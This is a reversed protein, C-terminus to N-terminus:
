KGISKPDEKRRKRYEEVSMNKIDPKSKDLGSGSAGGLGAVQTGKFLNAFEPMEKLTKVAEDPDLDLTKSEGGSKITVKVKTTFEGTGKGADDTIEVTRSNPSLIAIIQDPNFAEHKVSASTLAVRQTSTSFRNQWTNASEELTKIKTTSEKQFNEFQKKALEEKTMSSNRLEEVQNALTQREEDSLKVNKQLEELRKAHSETMKKREAAVFSNLQEQTFSKGAESGTGAGAGTGTATAAGAGAGADGEGEFMPSSLTAAFTLYSKCM